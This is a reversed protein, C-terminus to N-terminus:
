KHFFNYYLNHWYHIIKTARIAIQQSALEDSSRGVESRASANKSLELGAKYALVVTKQCMECFKVNELCIDASKWSIWRKPANGFMKPANKTCFTTVTVIKSFNSPINNM